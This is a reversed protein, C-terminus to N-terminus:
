KFLVAKNFCLQTLVAKNISRLILAKNPTQSPLSPSSPKKSRAHQPLLTLGGVPHKYLLESETSQLWRISTTSRDLFYHCGVSGLKWSNPWGVVHPTSRQRKLPSHLWRQQVKDSNIRGQLTCLTGVGSNPLDLQHDGPWTKKAWEQKRPMLMVM